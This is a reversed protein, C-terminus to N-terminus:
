QKASDEMCVDDFFGGLKLDRETVYPSERGSSLLLEMEDALRASHLNGIPRSLVGHKKSLSAVKGEGMTYDLAIAPTNAAISFVLAHYRMTVALDAGRFYEFCQDLTPERTLLDANVLESLEPFRRLLSRYYWRDDGGIYNTCMSLPVIQIGQRRGLDILASVLSEEFKKKKEEAQTSTLNRAYESYPWDRLGLLVTKVSNDHVPGSHDRVKRLAWSFAPDEAVMDGDTDIGLTASTELSREDRYIRHQANRLINSISENHFNEGLPGIGCGCIVFPVGADAAANSLSEMEALHSLAMLPGGGFVLLDFDGINFEANLLDLTTTDAIEPTRSRSLESVTTNLSGVVLDPQDYNRRLLYVIGSLIALDGITETGYWGCILIRPRLRSNVALSSSSRATGLSAFRRKRKAFVRAEVLRRFPEVVGGDNFNLLNRATKRCLHKIVIKPPLPGVYDHVCDDCSTKIINTLVRKNGFYAQRPDDTLLNALEPSKVACYLLKSDATITVGRFQWDCGAKRPLGYLLQDVLSQYFYIQKDSKEYHRIVCQLFNCFHFKESDDLLFPGVTSDSYLRKHPIGLRYKIYVDKEQAFDHLDHLGYVNDKVVTCGLQLFHFIGEEKVQDIVRVANDFNGQRGRVVDHVDGVGDLSIMVNLKGEHALASEYLARIGSVVKKSVLGNTILSIQELKPLKAFLVDAIEKLDKRITPEGGNIGVTRVNSFFRTDLIKELENPSIQYSLKQQWINCM